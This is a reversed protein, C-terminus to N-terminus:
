RELVYIEVDGDKESYRVAVFWVSEVKFPYPRELEMKREDCLIGGRENQTFPDHSEVPLSRSDQSGSFDMSPFGTVPMGSWECGRTEPITANM